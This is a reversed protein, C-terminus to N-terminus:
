LAYGTSVNVWNSYRTLEDIAGDADADRAIEILRGGADYTRTERSDINGDAGQDTSYSIRRGEADYQYAYLTDPTGDGDNDRSQGVQNGSDDYQYDTVREPTGDGDGDYAYRLLNGAANYDWTSARRIAGNVITQSTIGFPGYTDRREYEPNGDLDDDRSDFVVYGREDLERIQRSDTIGDLDLDNDRGTWRDSRTEGEPYTLLSRRDISGDGDVDLEYTSRMGAEDVIWFEITPSGPNGNQRRIMRGDADYEIVELATTVGAADVTENRVLGGFADYTLTRVSDDVGDGDSDNRYRIQQENADFEFQNVLDLVGDGDFDYEDAAVKGNSAFTLDRRYDISGDAGNDTVNTQHAELAFDVNAQAAAHDLARGTNTVPRETLAGAAAAQRLVLPLGLGNRGNGGIRFEYVTEDLNIKEPTVLAAVDPDITIGNDPNADADLSQLLVAMNTARSLPTASGDSAYVADVFNDYGQPIETMGALDFITIESAAAVQGLEVSGLTFTVTEGPQYRFEGASNTVGAETPTSYAVGEVASDIFVGTQYDPGSSSRGDSCGSLSITAVLLATGLLISQHRNDASIPPNGKESVTNEECRNSLACLRKSHQGSCEKDHERM